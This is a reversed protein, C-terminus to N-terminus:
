SDNQMKPGGGKRVMKCKGKKGYETGRRGKREQKEGSSGADEKSWM